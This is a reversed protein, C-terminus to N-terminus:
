SQEEDENADLLLQTAEEATPVTTMKIILHLLISTDEISAVQKKAQRVIKPFRARIVDLLAERQRQIERQLAEQRGKELGEELGEARGEKLIKQYAPTNRLIEDLLAFRRELWVQDAESKLVLSALLKTIPLLDYQEAVELGTIVEEVVEHRAGDKTMLLLPLLGVRGTQRIEKTYLEGLEISLYHFRLVERDGPIKWILPPKPVEGDSKLYIVSSYVPLMHVRRAEFNYELLREAIRPDNTSQFEFHALFRDGDQIAEVLADADITRKKVQTLLKGTAIAGSFLWTVFDQSNDNILMKLSDDWERAM